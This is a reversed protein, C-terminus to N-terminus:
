SFRRQGPLQGAAAQQGDIWVMVRLQRVPLISGAVPGASRLARIFVPEPRMAPDPAAAPHLLDQGPLVPRHEDAADSAVLAFQQVQEVPHEQEMDVPRRLPGPQVCVIREIRRTAALRAPALDPIAPGHKLACISLCPAIAM